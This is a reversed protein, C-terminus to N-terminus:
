SHIKNAMCAFFRDMTRRGVGELLRQGVRAVAGGVDASAAVKVITGAGAPELEIQAAGKVFGIRGTGEIVLRYSNPPLKDEIAVTAAFNGSIAAVTVALEAQYRDEGIPRLEQCGPVCSAIATTDMLLDWVAQQAAEFTYTSVLEM